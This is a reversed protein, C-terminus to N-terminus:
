AASGVAARAVARRYLVATGLTTALVVAGALYFAAPLGYGAVTIGYLIPNAAQSARNASLRLGVALGHVRADVADAVMVMTLPQSVGHGVGTVAAAALLVDFRATFPTAALGVTILVMSGLLLARRGFVPTLFRLFPRVFMGCLAGASVLVGIAAASFGLNQLYIPYFSSRVGTGFLAGSSALMSALVWPNRLMAGIGHVPSGPRPARRAVPEPAEEVGPEASMKFLLPLSLATIATAVGFAVRFGAADILSGGIPPGIFQGLSAAFTYYGFNGERDEPRGARAVYTQSAVTFMLHAFGGSLQAVLLGPVSRWLVLVAMGLTMISAGLRMLRRSGLRDVSAGLPVACFLPVFAYAAVAIGVWLEDLGLGGQAYLAIMPQITQNGVFTCTVAALLLRLDRGM